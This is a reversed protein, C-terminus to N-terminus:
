GNQLLTILDQNTVANITTNDGQKYSIFNLAKEALINAMSAPFPLSYDAAPTDPVKDPVKLYGIAIMKKKVDPKIAIEWPQTNTYGMSTYDTMPFYAYTRLWEPVDPYGAAFPNNSASSVQEITSRSAETSLAIATMEPRYVSEHPKLKQGSIPDVTVQNGTETVKGVLSKIQVQYLPALSTFDALAVYVSPNPWVGTITWVKDGLSAENMSVRSFSSSQWVRIKHLEGLKEEVFKNVGLQTSIISVSWEVAANIAPIIDIDDLYFEAGEADLGVRRMREIIDTLLIM